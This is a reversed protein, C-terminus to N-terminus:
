ATAVLAGTKKEFIRMDFDNEEWVIEYDYKEFEKFIEPSHGNIMEVTCSDQNLNGGFGILVLWFRFVNDVQWKEPYLGMQIDIIFDSNVEEFFPHNDILVNPDGGKSLISRLVRAGLDGDDFYQISQLINEHNIGDDCFVLDADLGNEIFIDFLTEWNYTRLEHLEPERNQVSLFDGYAFMGYECLEIAARTIEESNLKNNLIYAQIKDIGFPQEKCLQVLLDIRETM